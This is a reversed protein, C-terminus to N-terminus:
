AVGGGPCRTKLKPKRRIKLIRHPKKHKTCKLAERGYLMTESFKLFVKENAEDWRRRLLLVSSNKFSEKSVNGTIRKILAKPRWNTPDLFGPSM